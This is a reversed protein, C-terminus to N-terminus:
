LALIVLSGALLCYIGLLYLRSKRVIDLLVKIAALGVVMATLGGALFCPWGDGSLDAGISRAKLITAGGVAPLALLFSFSFATERKVGSLIATAITAGSRSIGPIVAIGQAAGIVLSNWAGLGRGKARFRGALDAALLWTGNLILACGVAKPMDFLREIPGKFFFGIVFTPLCALAILRITSWNKAFLSVIDKRFFILISGLTGVHVFIDFSIQPEAFGFLSHLIVLHGSSSIPLFETIGQVVGSVVAQPLSM